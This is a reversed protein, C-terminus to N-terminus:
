PSLAGMLDIYAACTPGDGKRSRERDFIKFGAEVGPKAADRSPCDEQMVRAAKEIAPRNALNCVLSARSFAGYLESAKRCDAWVAGPWCLMIAAVLLIPRM